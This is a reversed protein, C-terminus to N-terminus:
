HRQCQQMELKRVCLRKVTKMYVHPPAKELIKAEFSHSLNMGRKLQLTPLHILSHIWLEVEVLMKSSRSITKSVFFIKSLAQSIIDSGASQNESRIYVRGGRNVQRSNGASNLARESIDEFAKDQHSEAPTCLVTGQCCMIGHLCWCLDSRGRNRAAWDKDLLLAHVLCAYQKVHDLCVMVVQVLSRMSYVIDHIDDLLDIQTSWCGPIHKIFWLFYEIGYSRRLDTLLQLKMDTLNM